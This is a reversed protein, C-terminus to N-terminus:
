MLITLDFTVAYEPNLAAAMPAHMMYEPLKIQISSEIIFAKESSNPAAIPPALDVVSGKFMVM